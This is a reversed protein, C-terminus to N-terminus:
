KKFIWKINDEMRRGPGGLPRNGEREAVLFRHGGRRYGMRTVHGAEGIIRSKIVWM